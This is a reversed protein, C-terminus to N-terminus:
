HLTKVNELDKKYGAVNYSPMTKGPFFHKFNNKDFHM